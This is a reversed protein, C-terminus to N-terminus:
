ALFFFFSGGKMSIYNSKCTALLNYITAYIELQDNDALHWYM